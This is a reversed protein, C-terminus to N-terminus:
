TYSIVSAILTIGKEVKKKTKIINKRKTKGNIKEEKTETHKKYISIASKIIKYWLTIDKEINM